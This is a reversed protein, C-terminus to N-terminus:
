LIERLIHAAHLRRVAIAQKTATQIENAEKAEMGRTKVTRTGFISAILWHLRLTIRLFLSTLLRRLIVAWSQSWHKTHYIYAALNEACLHLSSGPANM